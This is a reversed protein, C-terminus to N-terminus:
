ARDEDPFNYTNRASFILISLNKIMIYVFRSSKVEELGGIKNSITWLILSFIRILGREQVM